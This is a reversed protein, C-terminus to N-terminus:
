LELSDQLKRNRKVQEQAMQTLQPNRELLKTIRAERDDSSMETWAKSGLHKKLADTAFRRAATKVPDVERPAGFQYAAAKEAVWKTLAKMDVQTGKEEAEDLLQKIQKSLNNRINEALTQQLAGAEGATCVHGEKYREPLVDQFELGAIMLGLM